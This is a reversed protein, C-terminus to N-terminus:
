ARLRGILLALSPCPLARARAATRYNTYMSSACSRVCPTLEWVSFKRATEIWEASFSHFHCSFALCCPPVIQFFGPNGSSSVLLTFTFHSMQPIRKDTATELLFPTGARELVQLKPFFPLRFPPLSVRNVVFLCRRATCGCPQGLRRTQSVRLYQDATQQM